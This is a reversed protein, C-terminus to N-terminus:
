VKDYTAALLIADQETDPSECIITGGAGNEKLARLLAQYDFDSDELSLHHREGKDNYAIGAAHGHLNDLATQGLNKRIKQLIFSFEEFTNYAGTRSHCHSFDICPAVGYIEASLGIVEDISGFQSAKGTVEPRLLVPNNEVRLQYIVEELKAKINRYAEAPKKGMYFGAHFIISHAGCIAAIRATALIRDQSAKIKQPDLSNLNIYFPAHASLKVRHRRAAAAITVATEASMRVGEVFEIELAGLNLHPIRAIADITTRGPASKPIGATGFVLKGM